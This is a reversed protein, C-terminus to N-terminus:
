GLAVTFALTVNYGPTHANSLPPSTITTGPTYDSPLVNQSFRVALSPVTPDVFPITVAASLILPTQKDTLSLPGSTNTSSAIPNTTDRVWPTLQVTGTTANSSGAYAFSLDATTNELLIVSSSLQAPSSARVIIQTLVMRVSRPEMTPTPSPPQVTNTPTVTPPRPTMTPTPSSPQETTTPTVTPLRPTGTGPSIGGTTFFDERAQVATTSTTARIAFYYKTGPQLATLNVQHSQTAVTSIEQQFTYSHSVTGYLIETTAAVSTKFSLAFTTETVTGLEVSSITLVGPTGSVTVTSAAQTAATTPTTIGTALSANGHPSATYRWQFYHQGINGMEVQFALPNTPTYSLVRREFPQVLVWTAVGGVTVNVWVAETLPLGMTSLWPIPLASLYSWFAFPINHAFRGGPDSQYSGFAAGPAAALGPNFGFTGDTKYVTGVPDSSKGVKAAFIGAGFAAYPPWSNTPDGVVPLMSPPFTAFLTDGMQRQGTILEVTLLGNTVPGNATTQEMRAKDFYQVLRQGGTAEQYQEPFITQYAPGWFNPVVPEISSWLTGFAPLGFPINAASGHTFAPAAVFTALLLLGAAMALVSRFPASRLAGSGM